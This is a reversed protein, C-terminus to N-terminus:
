VVSVMVGAIRAEAAVQPVDPLIETQSAGVKEGFGPDQDPQGAGM